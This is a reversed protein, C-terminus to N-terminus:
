HLDIPPRYQYMGPDMGAPVSSSSQNASPQAKPVTDAETDAEKSYSKWFYGGTVELMDINFSQFREDVTSIPPTNTLAISVPSARRPDASFYGVTFRRHSHRPNELENILAIAFDEL